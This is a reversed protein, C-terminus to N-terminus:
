VLDREGQTPGHEQYRWMLLRGSVDMKQMCTCLEYIKRGAVYEVITAQRRRLYKSIKWLDTVLLAAEVLTWEREGSKGRQATTGAIRRSIRHHFGEMVTMMMDIIVWIESRYLLVAQVVAKYVVAWSKIPVWTKGMVKEVIWLIRQAKRLNIYFDELYSNNYM